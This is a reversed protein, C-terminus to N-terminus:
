IFPDIINNNSHKINELLLDNKFKEIFKLLKDSKRNNTRTQYEKLEISNYNNHTIGPQLLSSSYKFLESINKKPYIFCWSILLLVWSQCYDDNTNVQLDNNNLTIFKNFNIYKKLVISLDKILAFDEYYEYGGPDFYYLINTYNDLIGISYHSNEITIQGIKIINYRYKLRDHKSLIDDKKNRFISFIKKNSKIDFLYEINEYQETEMIYGVNDLINQINFDEKYNKNEVIILDFADVISNQTSAILVNSNILLKELNQNLKTIQQRSNSVYTDGFIYDRYASSRSYKYKDM